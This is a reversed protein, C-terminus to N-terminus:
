ESTILAVALDVLIWALLIVALGILTYTITTKGQEKNDTIAGIIYQYGGIMLLIVAISGALVLALEILHFAFEILDIWHLDGTQFKEYMKSPIIAFEAANARVPLWFALLTFLWKRNM